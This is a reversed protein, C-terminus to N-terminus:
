IEPALPWLSKLKLLAILSSLGTVLAVSHPTPLPSHPCPATHNIFQRLIGHPRTVQEQELPLGM